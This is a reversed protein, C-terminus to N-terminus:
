DGQKIFKALIGNVFAGSSNQGYKKAITVAENIAVEEPVQDDYMMEYLAIRLITLEVKGIRKTNWKETKENLLKDLEPLKEMIRNYKETVYKEEAAIELMEEDEFFLRVQEPMEEPTNFEVRFLLKFVLERKEHLGLGM